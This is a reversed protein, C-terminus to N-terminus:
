GLIAIMAERDLQLVIRQKVAVPYNGYLHSGATGQIATQDRLCALHTLSAVYREDHM